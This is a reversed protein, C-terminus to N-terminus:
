APALWRDGIERGGGDGRVREFEVGGREKLGIGAALAHADDDVAVDVDIGVEAARVDAGSEGGAGGRAGPIGVDVVEDDRDDVADRAGGREVAERGGAGEGADPRM